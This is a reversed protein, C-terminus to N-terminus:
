TKMLADHHTTSCNCVEDQGIGLKGIMMKSSAFGQEIMKDKFDWVMETVLLWIFDKGM